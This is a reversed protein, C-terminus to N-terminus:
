FTNPIINQEFVEEHGSLCWTKKWDEILHNNVGDNAKENYFGSFSQIFKSPDSVSLQNQYQSNENLKQEVLSDLVTNAM